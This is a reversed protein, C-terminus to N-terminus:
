QKMDPWGVGGGPGGVRGGDGGAVRGGAGGTVPGRRLHRVEHVRAVQEARVEHPEAARGAPRIRCTV